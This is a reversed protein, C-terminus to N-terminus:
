IRGQIMRDQNTKKECLSAVMLGGFLAHQTACFYSEMLADVNVLEAEYFDGQIKVSIAEILKYNPPNVAASTTLTSVRSTFNKTSRKKFTKGPKAM